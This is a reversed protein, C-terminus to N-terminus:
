PSYEAVVLAVDDGLHAGAFRHLRDLVDDLAYQLDGGALPSVVWTLDVFRREPDRAEIVGDTYLLLRDGPSLWGTAAVPDAGLGLPLSHVVSLEGVAGGTVLLPAPHGCSVVAYSGDDAVDAVVATAFDEDELYPRLRRFFEPWDPDTDFDGLGWREFYGGFFLEFENELMLGFLLWM